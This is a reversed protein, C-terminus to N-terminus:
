KEKILIVKLMRNSEVDFETLVNYGIESLIAVVKKMGISDDIQVRKVKGSKKCIEHLGFISVNDKFEWGEEGDIERSSGRGSLAKLEKYLHFSVWRSLLTSPTFTKVTDFSIKSNREGGIEFLELMYRGTDSKFSRFQLEIKKQKKRVEIKYM